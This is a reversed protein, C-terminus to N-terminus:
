AEGAVLLSAAMTTPIFGEFCPWRGDIRSWLPCEGGPEVPGRGGVARLHPAIPLRPMSRDGAIIPSVAM